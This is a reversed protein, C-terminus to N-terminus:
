LNKEQLGSKEGARWREKKTMHRNGWKERHQSSNPPEEGISFSKAATEMTTLGHKGETNTTFITM